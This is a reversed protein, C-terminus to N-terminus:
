LREFLEDRQPVKKYGRKQYCGCTKMCLHVAILLLVLLTFYWYTIMFYVVSVLAGHHQISDDMFNVSTHGNILTAVKQYGTFSKANALSGDVEHNYISIGWHSM